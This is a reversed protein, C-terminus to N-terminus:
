YVQSKKGLVALLMSFDLDQTIIVKNYKFAYEVITIDKIKASMIESVRDIKLDNLRLEKVTLPSINM